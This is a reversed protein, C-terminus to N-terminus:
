WAWKTQFFNRAGAIMGFKVLYQAQWSFHCNFKVLYFVTGAVFVWEPSQDEHPIFPWKCHTSWCFDDELMVVYQAQSSFFGWPENFDDAECIFRWKCQPSCCADGGTGRFNVTWFIVFFRFCSFRWQCQAASGLIIRSHFWLGCGAACSLNSKASVLRMKNPFILPKASRSDHWIEGFVAGAVFLSLQVEGFLISHRGRLSM